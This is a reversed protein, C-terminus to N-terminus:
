VGDEDDEDEDEDEDGDPLKTVVVAAGKVGCCDSAAAAVGVVAGVPVVMSTILWCNDFALM